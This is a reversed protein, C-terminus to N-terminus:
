NSEKFFHRKYRRALRKRELVILFDVTHFVPDYAPPGGIEAGLWQYGKMLPPLKRFVQKMDIPEDVVTLEKVLHSPLPQIGFRRTIVGSNVLMTYVENMDRTNEFHVSACGILYQYDHRAIYEAIGEWLMRIAQGSRYAPAICSRGLELTTAKFPFGTLDFETESYFGGHKLAKPGPLMRYTGVVQGTETDVVIMHDCYADYGDYELGLENKLSLNGTEEVFVEYRLRLAQMIDAKTEAIRVTLGLRNNKSPENHETVRKMGKM